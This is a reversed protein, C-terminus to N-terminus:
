IKEEYAVIGGMIINMMEDLAEQYSINEEQLMPSSIFHEISASILERLIWLNVPRIRRQDIAQQLLDFTSEWNNEINTIVKKYVKPYKDKLSDLQRFDIEYFNDPLAIIVRRIKEVIDLEQRMIEQEKRKIAEYAYDATADLIEEKSAFITYITKKSIALRKVIDDMTFKLGKDRFEATTALIIEEKLEM